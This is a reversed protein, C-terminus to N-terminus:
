EKSITTMCLRFMREWRQVDKEEQGAEEQTPVGYEKIFCEFPRGNPKLSEVDDPSSLEEKQEQLDGWLHFLAEKLKALRKPNQRLNCADERLLYDGDTGCLLLEMQVPESNPSPRADEVLLIFRWEWKVDDDEVSTQTPDIDSVSEHDSLYSYDSERIPACFDELRNPFFDIVRIRSKYCTNQFPLHFSNGAPTKRLLLNPDMIASITTPPIAVNNCRINVNSTLTKSLPQNPTESAEVDGVAVAAKTKAKRRKNREKKGKAPPPVNEKNENHDKAHPRITKGDRIFCLKLKKCLEEYDRKRRLLEKFKEDTEAESKRVLQVNVKDPNYQDTRCHGELRTGDRDYTIQVNSLYVFDGPQVNKNVFGCHPRWCNITMTMKGWPGPWTKYTGDVYGFRDGYDYGMGDQVDAHRYDFLNPNETYDTVSMECRNGDSPDWIRRVECFLDRFVGKQGYPVTADSILAFKEQPTLAVRVHQASPVDDITRPTTLPVRWRSPDELSLISKAYRLELINPRPALYQNQGSCHIVIDSGNECTSNKMSEYELVVWGSASNSFSVREGKWDTNKVNRLIVIDGTSSIKPLRDAAKHFFRVPLGLGELWTPDHLMFSITMDTGRSKMVDKFDTCVGIINLPNGPNVEYAAQLSKFNPPVSPFEM